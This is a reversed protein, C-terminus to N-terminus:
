GYPCWIERCSARGIKAGMVDLALSAGDPVLEHGYAAGQEAAIDLLAVLLVAAVVAHDGGLDLGQMGHDVVPDLAIGALDAAFDEVGQAAVGLFAQGSSGLRIKQRGHDTKRRGNNATRRAVSRAPM